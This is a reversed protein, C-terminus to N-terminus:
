GRTAQHRPEGMRIRSWSATNPAPPRTVVEYRPWDRLICPDIRPAGQHLIRWYRNWDWEIWGASGTYPTWGRKGDIHTSHISTPRSWMPNSEIAGSTRSARAHNLLNLMSFLEMARDGDGLRAFAM